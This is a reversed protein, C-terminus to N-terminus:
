VETSALYSDHHTLQWPLLAEIDALSQANPLLTFVRQLYSFPELGNAKATEILSYLNASAKAGSQSNAFLWNKRGIVFPRIANEAPNNDIPYAGDDLYGVLREWQNHLYHVAKGLAMKPPTHQLTKNLWSKLKDIIPKAQTQRIKLREDVTKDKVQREIAYLKQIYALAQDAKGAKGKPQSKQAEIFKRRAHAWCGLRTLQNKQCISQYGDYGDVMVAGHYDGLLQEPVDAHRRSHYHYYVVPQHGTTLLLWMYSQSEPSKGPENLVQLATEDMHVVPQALAAEALLNILPQVLQGCQIMWNALTTRNLEVGIRKFMSVQRYLPLADAYKSIVVHALLNPTAISKEIPQKPKTATVIYKECCPCSYKRRVHAIAKIQAPIIDLQEHIEDGIHVLYTGDHPCVKDAEALDHIIQERPWDEPIRPKRSKRQHAMVTTATTDSEQESTEDQLQEAEDFLTVQDPSQKESSSAFRKYRSLRLQEELWQIHERLTTLQHDKQALKATLKDLEAYLFNTQLTPDAVYSM